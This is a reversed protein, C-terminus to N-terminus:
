YSILNCFNRFSDKFLEYNINTYFKLFVIPSNKFIGQFDWDLNDEM